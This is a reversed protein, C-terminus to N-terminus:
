KSRFQMYVGHTRGSVMVQRKFLSCKRPKLKVRHERLKRLVARLHEIHKLFIRSFLIIDDLYPLAVNDRLEGLCRGMFRQFNAPANLLGFPIRM